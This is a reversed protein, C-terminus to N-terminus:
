NIPYISRTKSDRAYNARILWNCLEIGQFTNKSEMKVGRSSRMIKYWESEGSEQSGSCECKRTTMEGLIKKKWFRCVSSRFRSLSVRTLTIKTDTVFKVSTNFIFLFFFFLNITLTIIVHLFQCTTIHISLQCTSKNIILILHQPRLRVPLVIKCISACVLKLDNKSSETYHAFHRSYLFISINFDASKVSSSDYRDSTWIGFIRSKTLTLSRTQSESRNM